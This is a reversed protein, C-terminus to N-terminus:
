GRSLRSRAYWVSWATLLLFVPTGTLLTVIAFGEVGGRLLAGLRLAGRALLYLGWVVSEVGFVRRFRPTARDDDDFPYWTQALVGALPRRLPVSLLFALGWAANLLVPQALYVTASQAALGVAAQVAVFALSLKALLGRRGARIEWLLAATAAATALAIGLALGGVRLGVYFLALPVLGERALGPLGRRALYGFTPEPPAIGGAPAAAAGAARM